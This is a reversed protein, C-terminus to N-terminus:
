ARAGAATLVRLGRLVKEPTIPLEYIRVGCARYIANAIAPAVPAIATEGIGIAGFPGEPHPDELLITKVNRPMEFATPLRYDMFNPNLLVGDAYLMEEYFTHGLACLVSGEVQGQALRPNIVKGANVAAVYKLVTVVGTETDVEVECGGAGSFWFASAKGQGTEPDLGGETKFLGRGMISGVGMGFRHRFIAAYSIRRSPAGQPYAHGDDLVVDTASVELAKAALEMLQERVEGSAQRVANGMSFTSRSSSTSQDYPTVATDSHVVNIRSPDVSLVAAAMQGLVTDSGQGIEVTGTLVSVSGDEEMKVTAASVTPTMTSKIMCALGKGRARGAGPSAAPAKWALEDAVRLLAERIPIAHLIEGTAFADGNQLVNRLRFELPDLGLQEALQDMQQEYAWAVQPVGFGRYAGGPTRNTYIAHSDLAINPIRYPGGGAYGANKSTRPGIDAYAGKDFLFEARRAILLGDKTAGSTMMSRVAHRTVTYFVEDRSLVIKIPRRAKRALAVALPEMKPYTKAGYGGGVFPAVVRVRSMPTKFMTALQERIVSPNQTCTWVEIGGDEHWVAVSAHPELAAHQVAPVYFEGEVVAAATRLAKDADGRRLGFHSAANRYGQALKMSKMDAFAVEAPRLTEHVLPAGEQISERPDMVAPLEDYDVDILSLAEEAVQADEAAVAAVIDGVFRVKDIAVIPQDRFVPGFFPDIAGDSFDDRTLVTHVGPLAVAASADIKTLKAHPVPSRLIKVHLMGPLDINITYLVRGTIKENRELRPVSAGISM